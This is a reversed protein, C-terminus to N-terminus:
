DVEVRNKLALERVNANAASAVNCYKETQQKVKSILYDKAKIKSKQVLSQREREKKHDRKHDGERKATVVATYLREALVTTRADASAAQVECKAAGIKKNIEDKMAAVKNDAMQMAKSEERRRSHAMTEVENCEVVKAPLKAETIALEKEHKETNVLLQHELRKSKKM